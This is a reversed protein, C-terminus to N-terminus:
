TCIHLDAQPRHLPAFTFDSYPTNLISYLPLAQRSAPAAGRAARTVKLHEWGSIGEMPLTPVADRCLPIRVLQDTPWNAPQGPICGFSSQMSSQTSPQISSQMSSAASVRLQHSALQCAPVNVLSPIPLTPVAHRGLHATFGREGFPSRLTPPTAVGRGCYAPIRHRRM